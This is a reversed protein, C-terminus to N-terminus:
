KLAVMFALSNGHLNSMLWGLCDCPLILSLLSIFISLCLSFISHPHHSFSSLLVRSYPLPLFSLFVTCPLSPLHPNTSPTPRPPTDLMVRMFWHWQLSSFIILFCALATNFVALPLLGMRNYLFVIQISFFFPPLHSMPFRLLSFGYRLPHWFARWFANHLSVIYIVSGYQLHKYVTAVYLRQVAAEPNIAM